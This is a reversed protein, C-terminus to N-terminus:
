KRLEEIKDNILEIGETSAEKLQEFRGNTILQNIEEHYSVGIFIGLAVLALAILRFM